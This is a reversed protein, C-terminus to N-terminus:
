PRVEHYEDEHMVADFRCGPHLLRIERKAGLCTPALVDGNCYGQKGDIWYYWRSDTSRKYMPTGRRM